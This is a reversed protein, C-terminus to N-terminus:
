LRLHRTPAVRDLFHRDHSVVVLAGDYDALGAELAEITELDLHNTPEDLFLLTPPRHGLACTLGARMREGGSLTGVVQLAAEARFRFRALAARCDTEGAGPNLRLFADRITEDANLLSVSQDLLRADDTTVRGSQPTLRGTLLDVLTSKGAGNPGTIALREPGTVVLDFDRILPAAPDHGGTLGEAVIVRHGAALGTPPVEITVPELVEVRTRAESAAETAEAARRSNQVSVGSTTAEARAKMADLLIKPQDRRARAAKGRANRKDQREKLAQNRRRAETEAREARALDDRAAELEQAKQERYFSYNGGYLTAGLTTLEVTADMRDLLDRDHSVVIASGKWSALVDALAERGDADLNNTPEDLLMLDPETFILAALAARTRQGGSLTALQTTAGRDLKVASLAADIRPELTWDAEALEDVGAEGRDARALLDLAGTAGFLDAITGHEPQIQTLTGIRAPRDIAGSTPTEGAILRLLATKGVGNRGVLGTRGAPITLTLGSFLTRQDPLTLSVDSLSISPM